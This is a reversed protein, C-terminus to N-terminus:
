DGMVIHLAAQHLEAAHLAVFELLEGQNGCSRCAAQQELFCAEHKRPFNSGARESTILCHSCHNSGRVDTTHDKESIWERGVWVMGVDLGKSTQAVNILNGECCIGLAAFRNKVIEQRSFRFALEDRVVHKLHVLLSLAFHDLGTLGRIKEVFSETTRFPQTSSAEPRSWLGM